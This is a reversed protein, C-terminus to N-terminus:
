PFSSTREGEAKLVHGFKAMHVSIQKFSVFDPVATVRVKQLGKSTPWEFVLRGAALPWTMGRRLKDVAV